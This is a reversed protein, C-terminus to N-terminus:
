STQDDAIEGMLHVWVSLDDIVNIMLVGLGGILSYNIKVVLQLVLYFAFTDFSAVYGRKFM